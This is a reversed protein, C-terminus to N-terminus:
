ENLDFVDQDPTADAGLKSPYTVSMPWDDSSLSMVGGTSACAAAWAAPLARRQAVACVGARLVDAAAGGAEVMATLTANLAAASLHEAVACWGAGAVCTVVARQAAPTNNGDLSCTLTDAASNPEHTLCAASNNTWTRVTEGAASVDPQSRLAVNAPLLRVARMLWGPVALMRRLVVIRVLM